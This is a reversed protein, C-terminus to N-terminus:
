GEDGSAVEDHVASKGRLAILLYRHYVQSRRLTKMASRQAKCSAQHVGDSISALIEQGAVFSRTGWGERKKRLTPFCAGRGREVIWLTFTAKNGDRAIARLIPRRIIQRDDQNVGNGPHIFM